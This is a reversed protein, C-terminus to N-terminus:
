YQNIKPAAKVTDKATMATLNSTHSPGIFKMCIHAHRHRLDRHKLELPPSDERRLLSQERNLRLDYEELTSELCIEVTQYRTLALAINCSDTGERLYFSVESAM